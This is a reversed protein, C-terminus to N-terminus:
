KRTLLCAMTVLAATVALGTPTLPAILNLFPNVTWIDTIGSDMDFSQRIGLRVSNVLMGYFYWGILWLLVYLKWNGAHRSRWRKAKKLVRDEIKAIRESLRRM